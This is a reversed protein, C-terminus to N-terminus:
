NKDPITGKTFITSYVGNRRHNNAIWRKVASSKLSGSHKFRDEIDGGGSAEEMDEKTM